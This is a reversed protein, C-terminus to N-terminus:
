RTALDTFLKSCNHRVAVSREGGLAGLVREESIERVRLAERVKEVLVTWGAEVFVEPARMLELLAIERASLRIREPNKRTHQTVGNIASKPWLVAVHFTAPVQTTVSWARAASYEAPGVGVDGLVERVIDEVSPQSMGYQTEVGRYYLGRRIAVLENRQAARSVAQRASDRSGPLESVRIFSQEPTRLIATSPSMTNMDRLHLSFTVYCWHDFWV